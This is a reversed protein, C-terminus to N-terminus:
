LEGPGIRYAKRDLTFVYLEGAADEGFSIIPGVGSFWHRGDEVTEADV